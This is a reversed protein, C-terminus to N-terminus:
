SLLFHILESRNQVNCKKFINNVHNHVTNISIKLEHSIEKNQFGKIILYIIEEERKTINNKEISHKIIVYNNSNNKIENYLSEKQELLKKDIAVKSQNLIANIKYILEEINFPKQIYDIAGMKLGKIRDKNSTKGSIFIVPMDEFREDDRLLKLFQFGSMEGMVIDSLILDLNNNKNILKLGDEASNAYIINFHDKMQNIMYLLLNNDNELILITKKNKDNQNIYGDFLRQYDSQSYDIKHVVYEKEAELPYYRHLNISIVTNVGLSSNISINGNVSDIINQIINLGVGIGVIDKKISESQFYPNFINNLEEEPIGIGTDEIKINVEDNVSKLIINIEGSEDKSYKIANDIINYIIRDVANIDMKIFLDNEITSTITINNISAINKLFIIKHKLFDSLNIIDNHKYIIQGMKIKEVNLIDIISNLLNGVQTKVINLSKSKGQKELLSNLYNNILTLPTKIEHAVNIFFNTKDKLVENLQSTREKVKDEMNKSYAEIKRISNSSRFAIVIIMIIIFLSIGIPVINIVPKRSNYIVVEIIISIFILIIGFLFLISYNKKMVIARVIIFMSYIFSFILFIQYYSVTPRYIVLPLLIIILSEIFNVLDIFHLIKIASKDEFHETLFHYFVSIGVTMTLLEIKHNLFFNIYSLENFIIFRQVLITRIIIIVTLLFFYFFAKSKRNSFYFFVSYILLLFLIGLLLMRMLESLHRTNYINKIPGFTIPIAMGILRYHYSSVNIVIELYEENAPLPVIEINGSPISTELSGGVEGCKLVSQGNVWVEYAELIRKIELAYNENKNIKLQLRYTLNKNKYNKENPVNSYDKVFKKTNFEEPKIIEDRYVEWQGNLSITSHQNFDFKSLDVFGKEIILSEDRKCSFFLILICM